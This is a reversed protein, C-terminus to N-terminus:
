IIPYQPDVVPDRAADVDVIQVTKVDDELVAVEAVMLTITVSM